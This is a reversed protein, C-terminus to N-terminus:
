GIAISTYQKGRINLEGSVTFGNSNIKIPLNERIITIVLWPKMSKFIHIDSGIEKKLLELRDPELLEVKINIDRQPFTRTDIYVVGDIKNLRFIKSPLNEFEEKNFASIHIMEKGKFRSLVQGKGLVNRKGDITTWRKGDEHYTNYLRKGRAFMGSYFGTPKRNYWAM